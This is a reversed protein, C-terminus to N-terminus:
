TVRRQARLILASLIRGLTRIQGYILLVGNVFGLDSMVKKVHLLDEM